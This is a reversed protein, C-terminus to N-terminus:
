VMRKCKRNMYKRYNEETFGYKEINRLYDGANILDETDFKFNVTGKSFLNLIIGGYPWIIRNEFLYRHIETDTFYDYVEPDFEVYGWEKVFDIRKGDKDTFFGLHGEEDLAFRYHSKDARLGCVETFKMTAVGSLYLDDTFIEGGFIETCEGPKYLEEKAWMSENVCITAGWVKIELYDVPWIPIVFDIFVAEMFEIRRINERTLDINKEM